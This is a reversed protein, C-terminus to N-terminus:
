ECQQGMEDTKKHRQLGRQDCSIFHNKKTKWNKGKTKSPRQSTLTRGTSSVSPQASTRMRIYDHPDMETTRTHDEVGYKNMDVYGMDIYCPTVITDEIYNDEIYNMEITENIVHRMQLFVLCWVWVTRLM